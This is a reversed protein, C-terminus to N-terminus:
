TCRFWDGFIEIDGEALRNVAWIKSGVDLAYAAVAVLVFLNRTSRRHSATPGSEGADSSSLSAGRAAQM